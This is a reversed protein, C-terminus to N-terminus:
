AADAYCAVVAYPMVAPWLVRDPPTWGYVPFWSGKESWKAWGIPKCDQCGLLDGNAACTCGAIATAGLALSAVASHLFERRHLDM